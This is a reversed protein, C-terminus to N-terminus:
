GRICLPHHHHFCLLAWKSQARYSPHGLHVSVGLDLQGVELRLRHFYFPLLNDGHGLAHQFCSPRVCSQSLSALVPDVPHYLGCSLIEHIRLTLLQLLSQQGAPVQERGLFPIKSPHAKYLVLDICTDMRHYLLPNSSVRRGAPFLLPSKNLVREQNPSYLLTVTRPTTQRDQNFLLFAARAEADIM